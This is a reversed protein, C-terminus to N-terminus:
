IALFAVCREIKREMTSHAFELPLSRSCCFSLMAVTLLSIGEKNERWQARIIIIARLIREVGANFGSFSSAVPNRQFLAVM